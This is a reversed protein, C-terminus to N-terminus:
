DSLTIPGNFRVKAKGKLLDQLYASGEQATVYHIPKEPSMEVIESNLMHVFSYLPPM